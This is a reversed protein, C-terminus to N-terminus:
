GLKVNSFGFRFCVYGLTNKTRLFDFAMDSTLYGMLEMRAKEELTAVGYQYHSIVYSKERNFINRRHYPLKSLLMKVPQRNGDTKNFNEVKVCTPESVIKVEPKSILDRNGSCKLRNITKSFIEKAEEKTFNGEVHCQCYCQSWITARESEFDDYTLKTLDSTM